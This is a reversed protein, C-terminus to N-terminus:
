PPSGAATVFVVSPVTAGPGAAPGQSRLVLPQGYALTGATLPQTRAADAWLTAPPQSLMPCLDPGPPSTPPAYAVRLALPWSQFTLSAVSSAPSGPVFPAPEPYPFFVVVRGQDDAVGIAGPGGPPVVTLVAWAAPVGGATVPDFLEARVAAMGPPPTRSPASYLLVPVDVGPPSAPRVCPPAFLGRAPLDANFRTPLYRGQTDSVEVVFPRRSVAAWYVDDGAGSEADRLGPLGRAVYVGSRNPVAAVTRWPRGAAYVTVALGDGVAAGTAADAFRLGLPAVATVTDLVRPAAM